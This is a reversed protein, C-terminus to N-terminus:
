GTVEEAPGEERRPPVLGRKGGRYRALFTDFDQLLPSNEIIFQRDGGAPDQVRFAGTGKDRSDTRLSADGELRRVWRWLERVRKGDVRGKKPEGGTYMGTSSNEPQVPSYEFRTGEKRSAKWFRYGNGSGDHFVVNWPAEPAANEEAEAPGPPGPAGIAAAWAAFLVALLIIGVGSGAISM